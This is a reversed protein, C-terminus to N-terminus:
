LTKSTSIVRGALCIKLWVFIVFKTTSIGSLVRVEPKTSLAWVAGSGPTLIGTTSVTVPVIPNPRAIRAPVVNSYSGKTTRNITSSSM